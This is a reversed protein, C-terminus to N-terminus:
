ITGGILKNYEKITKDLSDALIGKAEITFNIPKILFARNKANHHCLPVRCKECQEFQHGAKCVCKYCVPCPNYQNCGIYAADAEYDEKRSKFMKTNGLADQSIKMGPINLIEGM